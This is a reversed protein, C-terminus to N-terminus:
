AVDDAVERWDEDHKGKRYFSISKKDWLIPDVYVTKLSYKDIIYMCM